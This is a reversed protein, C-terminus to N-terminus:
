FLYSYFSRVFYFLFFLILIFYYFLVFYFCDFVLSLIVVYGFADIDDVCEGVLKLLASKDAKRESHFDYWLYRNTHIIHSHYIFLIHM